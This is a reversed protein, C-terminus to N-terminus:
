PGLHGDQTYGLARGGLVKWFCQTGPSLSLLFTLRLPLCTGAACEYGTCTCVSAAGAEQTDKLHPHCSSAEQRPRVARVEDRVVSVWPPWQAWEPLSGAGPVSRLEVTSSTHARTHLSCVLTHASPGQTRTCLYVCPSATHLTHLIHATLTHM